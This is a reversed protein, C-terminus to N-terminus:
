VDCGLSLSNVSASHRIGYFARCSINIKNKDGMFKVSQLKNSGFADYYIKAVSAPITVTSLKNQYFAYEDIFEITNPLRVSTIGMGISEYTERTELKEIKYENTSVMTRPVMVGNNNHVYHYHTTFAYPGIAKIKKGNITEPIIVNKPCTKGGEKNEELFFYQKIYSYEIVESNENEYTVTEIKFCKESTPNAVTINRTFKEYGDKTRIIYNYKYEGEEKSVKGYTFVDKNSDKLIKGKFSIGADKYSSVENPMLLMDNEGNISIDDRVKEINLNELPFERDFVALIYMNDNEKVDITTNTIGRNSQYGKENLCRGPEDAKSCEEFISDTAITQVNMGNTSFNYSGKSLNSVKIMLIHIDGDVSNIRNGKIEFSKLDNNVEDIKAQPMEAGFSKGLEAYEEGTMLKFTPENIKGNKILSEKIPKEVDLINLKSLDVFTGSTGDTTVDLMLYNEYAGSGLVDVTVKKDKVSVSCDKFKQGTLLDNCDFSTKKSTTLYDQSVNATKRAQVIFANKKSNNYMKLVNPVAIVTLIALIAIVALLEVLTFGKRKM